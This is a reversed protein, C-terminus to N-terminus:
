PLEKRDPAANLTPLPTAKVTLEDREPEYDTGPPVIGTTTTLEQLARMEPAVTVRFLSPDQTELWKALADKDTVVLKAPKRRWAVTGSLFQRSKTRGILLEAKHNEAFEAVRGKFFAVRNAASAKLKEARATARAILDSLQEDISAIEAESEAVCELAWEVDRISKPAWAGAEAIALPELPEQAAAAAEVIALTTV